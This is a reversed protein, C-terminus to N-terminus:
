LLVMKKTATFQDTELKYLYVGSQPFDRASVRVDQKGARYNGRFRKVVRGSIDYITVTAECDEPLKFSIITGSTFPNPKNQYLEFGETDLGERANLEFEGIQESADYWENRLPGDALSFSNKTNGKKSTEFRFTFAIDENQIFYPSTGSWSVLIKGEEIFSLGLDEEGFGPLSGQGLGMFTYTDAPYSLTFQMGRTGTYATGKFPVEITEFADFDSVEYVLKCTPSNRNQVTQNINMVDGNIDGVKVAVFDANSVDSLLTNYEIVENFPEAMPTQPNTFTYAKEVFRWSTNVPFSNSIRLIVKQLSVLDLTTISGSKNIDGAICTYPNSLNQVNLIHKSLQLMDFTSIGALIDDNKYPTVKYSKGPELQKFEYYGNADTITTKNTFGNLQVSVGSIPADGATKIVGSITLPRTGTNPCRNFNDQVDVTVIVFDSNGAEDMVWVEVTDLGLDNCTYWIATDTAPLTATTDLPRITFKLDGKLTCNDFSGADFAKANLWAGVNGGFIGLDLSLRNLTKVTPGNLDEITVTTQCTGTNGCRDEGYFTVTTLGTPYAGSADAGQAFAFNSNHTIIVKPDCDTFTVPALTVPTQVCNAAAAVVTDAPCTLVPDTVDMIIIKQTHTFRQNSCMELVTWKRFVKYCAPVSSNYLEDTFNTFFMFCSDDPLVPYDYPAPLDAPAIDPDCNTFTTDRPWVIANGNFTNNNQVTITQTCSASNGSSDVATFIRKITGVGCNSINYVATDTLSYGCVETVTANGYISLDSYDDHCDITVNAPCRIVPKLKDQVAVFLMCDDYVSDRNLEFVRLVVMISDKGVDDCDFTIGPTFNVMDRSALFGVDDCNDYSGEDFIRAPVVATGSSNLSIVTFERCIATPEEEDIIEIVTNCTVPIESCDTATYLVDYFGTGLSYPGFGSGIGPIQVTIDPNSTCDDSVAPNPIIFTASCQLPDTVVEITDLCGLTAPTTDRTEIIQQFVTPQNSVCSDTILWNRIIKFEADKCVPIPTENGGRVVWLNCFPANPNNNLPVGDVTPYGTNSPSINPNACDVVVISDLMVESLQIQKISIEQTCSDMNGNDDEAIWKRFLLASLTDPDDCPRLDISDLHWLRFPSCNDVVQPAGLNNVSTDVNCKITLDPCTQFVPPTEDLINLAVTCQPLNPGQSIAEITQNVLNGMNRLHFTDTANNFTALRLTIPGDKVEVTIPFNCSGGDLLVSPSFVLKCESDPSANLPGSKCQCQAMMTQSLGTAMFLTLLVLKIKRHLFISSIIGETLPFLSSHKM